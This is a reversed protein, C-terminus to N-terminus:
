EETVWLDSSFFFRAHDVVVVLFRVKKLMGLEVHESELFDFEAVITAFLLVMVLVGKRSDAVVVRQEAVFFAPIRELVGKLVVEVGTEGFIVKQLMYSVVFQSGHDATAGIRNHTGDSVLLAFTQADFGVYFGESELM